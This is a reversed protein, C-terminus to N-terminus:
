EKLVLFRQDVVVFFLIGTPLESLNITNQRDSIDRNFLLRGYVDMVQVSTPETTSITVESTAPNPYISNEGNGDYRV